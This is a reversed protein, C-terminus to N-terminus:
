PSSFRGFFLISKTKQHTIFFLFPHDAVFEGHIRVSTVGVTIGTAAAAETGEENVEIYAKHVAESVLLGEAIGSLDSEAPNFADTMGLAQLYKTLAAFTEIKFRPLSVKVKDEKLHEPSIWTTLKEYTLEEELQTLGAYDNPLLIYMSLDGGKYPLELVQCHHEEIKAIKYNGLHHMMQVPRSTTENVHFLEEWTEEKKFKVAWQGKFYVANVLVLKTAASLTRPAFLDKIKGKTFSEVWLNIEERTEEAANRFDTPKLEAQYMKQICVLYQQLFHFTKEGYLRNAIALEYSTTPKNIASLIDHFQSHIGGPTDCQYDPALTFILFLVNSVHLFHKTVKQIQTQTNGRAGLLVMGLAASISLPSFIINKSAFDENLVKFFDLCFITNGESPGSM